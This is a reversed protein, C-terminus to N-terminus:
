NGERGERALQKLIKTLSARFLCRETSIATTKLACFLQICRVGNSSSSGNQKQENKKNENNQRMTRKIRAQWHRYVFAFLDLM